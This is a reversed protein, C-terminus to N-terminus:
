YAGSANDFDTGGTGYSEGSDGAQEAHDMSDGDIQDTCQEQDAYGGGAPLVKPLPTGTVSPCQSIGHGVTRCVLCQREHMPLTGGVVDILNAPIAQDFEWAGTMRMFMLQSDLMEVASFDCTLELVGLYRVYEHHAQLVRLPVFQPHEPDCITMLWDMRLSALLHAMKCAIDPNLMASTTRDALMVGGDAARALRFTRQPQRTKYLGPPGFLRLTAPTRRLTKDGSAGIPSPGGQFGLQHMLLRCSESAHAPGIGAEAYTRGALGVQLDPTIGSMCVGSRAEGELRIVDECETAIDDCVGPAARLHTVVEAALQQIDATSFVQGAGAGAAARPRRIAPEPRGAAWSTPM